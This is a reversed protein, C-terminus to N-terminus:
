HTMGRTSGPSGCGATSYQLFIKGTRAWIRLDKMLDPGTQSRMQRQQRLMIIEYRVAM